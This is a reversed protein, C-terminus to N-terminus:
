RSYHQLIRNESIKLKFNKRKPLSIFKGKLLNSDIQLHEALKTLKSVYRLMKKTKARKKILEYKKKNTLFYKFIRSQSKECISIEDNKRCLFSPISVNINNVLIHKHNILQRAGRITAAFGLHHIVTDLRSELFQLLINGTPKLNKKAKIYYDELQKETIGYNYRLKQKNILGKKYDQKLTPIRELFSKRKKEWPKRKAKIKIYKGKEGPRKKRNKFSKTTLGPIYGLRRVIRVRPGIYKVM